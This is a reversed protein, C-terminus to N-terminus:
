HQDTYPLLALFRAIKISKVVQRQRRPATGTIRGPIIRGNELIYMKLTDLDKYDIEQEQAGNDSTLSAKKHRFYHSM